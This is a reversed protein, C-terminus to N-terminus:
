LAGQECVRVTGNPARKDLRESSGLEIARPASCTPAPRKVTIVVEPMVITPDAAANAALTALGAIVLAFSITKM